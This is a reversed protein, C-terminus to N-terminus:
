FRSVDRGFLWNVTWYIPILVKNRWSVSKTLYVGRWVLWAAFGSVDGGKSQLIASGAGTYAMVGLDKYTFAKSDLDDKNLRKALWSAKQSAVQATAPYNTGEVNACDGIAFVDAYTNSGAQVRMREDTLIAHTKPHQKVEESLKEVLPNMMLGTSWVCMGVGVEGEEQLKITYGLEPDKADEAAEQLAVPLGKRLEQVHHSTKIDIGQRKFSQMAYQSLKEDFMSLVKPAVDYVTIKALGALDPYLRSLDETILDHMEASWEIGTPGGGVIAINLLAKKVTLSTTPLSATEFCSLIRQRIARADGVDKLFFANEKVGKTGFTEAYCGVAIVLKDFGLDFMKGKEKRKQSLRQEPGDSVLARSTFPDSM